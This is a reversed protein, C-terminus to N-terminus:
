AVRFYTQNFTSRVEDYFASMADGNGATLNTTSDKVDSM